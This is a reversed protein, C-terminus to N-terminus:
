RGSPSPLASAGGGSGTVSSGHRPTWAPVRDRHDIEPGESAAERNGQGMPVMGPTPGYGTAHSIAERLHVRFAAMEGRYQEALDELMEQKEM